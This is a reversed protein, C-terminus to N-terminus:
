RKRWTKNMNKRVSKKHKDVEFTGSGMCAPCDVENDKNKISGLGRCLHCVRLMQCRRPKELVITAFWSPM